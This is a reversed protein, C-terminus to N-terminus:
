SSTHDKANVQALLRQLGSEAYLPVPRAPTPAPQLVPEPEPQAVQHTQQPQIIQQVSAPPSSGTMVQHPARVLNRIARGNATGTPSASIARLFGGLVRLPNRRTVPIFGSVFAGAWGALIAVVIEVLENSDRLQRTLFLTAFITGGIVAQTMTYPGGPIKTGDTFRGLMRPFKRARTYFRAIETM